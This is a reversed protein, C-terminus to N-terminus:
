VPEKKFTLNFLSTTQKDHPFTPFELSNEMNGCTKRKKSRKKKKAAGGKQPYSMLGLRTCRAAKGEAMEGSIEEM